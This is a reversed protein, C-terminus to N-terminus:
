WAERGVANGTQIEDHITDERIRSLLDELIYRVPQLPQIVLRHGDISIDVPSGERM